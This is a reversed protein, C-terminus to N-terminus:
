FNHYFLFFSLDNHKAVSLFCCYCIFTALVFFLVYNSIYLALKMDRIDISLCYSRILESRKFLIPVFMELYKFSFLKSPLDYLNTYKGPLVCPKRLGCVSRGLLIINHSLTAEGSKRLRFM